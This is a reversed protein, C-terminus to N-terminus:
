VSTELREERVVIFHLVWSILHKQSEAMSESPIVKQM